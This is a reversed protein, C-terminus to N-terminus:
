KALAPYTFGIFHVTNLLFHAIISSEIHKTKQYVYGYILGALSALMIYKIGGMFHNVGFLISTLLLALYNGYRYSKLANSIFNQTFGRFLAEEAICTFLLNNLAWIVFFSNIKLDYKVYGFRCSFYSLLLVGMLTIPITTKLMTLWDIRTKLLPLRSFGLIFLAILPKDFNLFMTYRIANPSILLEKTILWNSFGPINHIGASISFGITFVIVGCIIKIPNSKINFTLYHIGAFTVIFLLSTWQLRNALFALLTAIFLFSCFIIPKRNFWLSLVAASLFIYATLTLKSNLLIAYNFLM